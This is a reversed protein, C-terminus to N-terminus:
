GPLIASPNQKTAIIRSSQDFPERAPPKPTQVTKNSFPLPSENKREEERESEKRKKKKGQATIVWDDV